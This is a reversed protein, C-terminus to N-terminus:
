EVGGPLCYSEMVIRFSAGVDVRIWESVAVEELVDPLPGPGPKIVVYRIRVQEPFSEAIELEQGLKYGPNPFEFVGEYAWAGGPEEPGTLTGVFGYPGAIAYGVAEGGLPTLTFDETPPCPCGSLLLGALGVVLTLCFGRM